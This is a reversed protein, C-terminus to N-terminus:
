RGEKGDKYGEEYALDILDKLTMNLLELIYRRDESCIQRDKCVEELWSSRNQDGSEQGM